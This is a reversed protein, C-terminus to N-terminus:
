SFRIQEKIALMRDKLLLKKKKLETIERQQEGNLFGNGVLNELRREYDLHRQSLLRYEDNERILDDVADKRPETM